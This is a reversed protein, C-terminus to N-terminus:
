LWPARSHEMDHLLRDMIREADQWRIYPIEFGGSSLRVVVNALGARRQLPSQYVRVKQSRFGSFVTYHIGFLGGRLVLYDGTFSWGQRRWNLWILALLIPLALGLGLAIGSGGGIGLGIVAAGWAVLWFGSKPLMYRWSVPSFSLRELDIGPCFQAAMRNQEQPTLAPAMLSNGSGDPMDPQVMGIQHCTLHRRGFLRAVASQALRIHQIKHHRLVQERQTFLGSHLRYRDDQSELRYGYYRILAMVISIVTMLLLLALLGGAFLWEPALSEPLQDRLQSLMQEADDNNELRQTVAGLASAIIAGGWLIVPSSIGFIVLDSPRRTLLTHFTREGASEEGTEEDLPANAAARALASDRLQEARDRAIGPLHVEQSASGASEISLRALGFLRLYPPREIRINQIRDFQLTLRQRTFVGRHVQIADEQLRYRFRLWAVILLGLGFLSLGMLTAVAMLPARSAFAYAGALMGILPGPNTGILQRFFVLAQHIMSLPSVRQWDLAESTM